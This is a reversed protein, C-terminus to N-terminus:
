VINNGYRNPEVSKMLLFVFFAVLSIMAIPMLIDLVPYGYRGFSINLGNAFDESLLKELDVKATKEIINFIVLPLFLLFYWWGKNADHLRRVTMALLPIFVILNYLATLKDNILGLVISIIFDALIVLWFDKRNTRDKFNLGNKWMRKYSDIM